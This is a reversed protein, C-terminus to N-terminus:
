FHLHQLQEDFLPFLSFNTFDGLNARNSDLFILHNGFTVVEMGGGLNSSPIERPRSRVKPAENLKRFPIDM